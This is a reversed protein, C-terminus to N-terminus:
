ESIVHAEVVKDSLNDNANRWRVVAAGDSLGKNTVRVVAEHGQVSGRPLHKLVPTTSGSLIKELKRRRSLASTDQMSGDMYVCDEIYFAAVGNKVSGDLIGRIKQEGDSKEFRSTINGTFVVRNVSSLDMVKLSDYISKFVRTVDKGRLFLHIDPESDTVEIHAEMEYGPFWSTILVDTDKTEWAKWADEASLSRTVERPISIPKGFAIKLEEPSPASELVVTEVHRKPTSPTQIPVPLKKEASGLLADFVDSLNPIEQYDDDKVAHVHDFESSLSWDVITHLHGNDFTTVGNGNASDLIIAKHSHRGHNSTTAVTLSSSRSFSSFLADRLLVALNSDVERETIQFPIVLKHVHSSSNLIKGNRIVHYHSDIPDTFGGGDRNVMATHNHGKEKETTLEFDTVTLKKKDLSDYTNHILSREELVVLVEAHYWSLFAEDVDGLKGHLSDHLSWLTTDPLTQLRSLTPFPM